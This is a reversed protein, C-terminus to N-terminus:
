RGGRHAIAPTTDHCAHTTHRTDHWAHQPLYADIRFSAASALADHSRNTRTGYFNSDKLTKKKKGKDKKKDGKATKEKGPEEDKKKGKWYMDVIDRLADQVNSAPLMKIDSSFNLEQGPTLLTLEEKPYNDPISLALQTKELTPLVLKFEVTADGDFELDQVCADPSDYLCKAVQIDDLLADVVKKRLSSM